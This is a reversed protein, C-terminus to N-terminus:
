NSRGESCDACNWVRGESKKMTLQNVKRLQPVDPGCDPSWSRASAVLIVAPVAGVQATIGSEFQGLENSAGIFIM